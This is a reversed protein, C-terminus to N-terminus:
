VPYVPKWDIRGRLFGAMVLVRSVFSITRLNDVHFSQSMCYSYISCMKTFSLLLLFSVRHVPHLSSLDLAKGLGVGGILQAKVIPTM